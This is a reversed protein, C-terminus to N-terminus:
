LRVWFLRPNDVLKFIPLGYFFKINFQWPKTFDESFVNDIQLNSKWLYSWEQIKGLLMRKVAQLFQRWRYSLVALLICFCGNQRGRWIVINPGNGHRLCGYVWYILFGSLLYKKRLTNIASFLLTKRISNGPVPWSRNQTMVNGRKGLLGSQRRTIFGSMKGDSKIILWILWNKRRLRVVQEDEAHDRWPFQPVQCILRILTFFHTRSLSDKMLSTVNGHRTILLPTDPCHFLFGM